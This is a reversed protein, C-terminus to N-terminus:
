GAFFCEIRELNGLGLGFGNFSSSGMEATTDSDNSYTTRLSSYPLPDRDLSYTGYGLSLLCGKITIRLEMRVSRPELKDKVVTHVIHSVHLAM